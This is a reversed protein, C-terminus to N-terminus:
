RVFNTMIKREAEPKPITNKTAEMM